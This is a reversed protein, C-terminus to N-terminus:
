MNIIEPFLDFSDLDFSVSAPDQMLPDQILHDQLSPNLSPESVHEQGMTYKDYLEDYFDIDKIEVTKITTRCMPCAPSADVRTNDLHKCLCDKCFVHQCNTTLTQIQKIADLCIPCDVEVALEDSTELCLMMPQVTWITNKNTMQPFYMVPYDMQQVRWNDTTDSTPTAPAADRTYSENIDVVDIIEISGGLDDDSDTLWQTNWQTYKVKISIFIKEYLAYASDTFRAGCFQIAMARVIRNSLDSALFRSQERFDEKTYNVLHPNGIGLVDIWADKIEPDNCTRINHGLIGCHSCAHHTTQMKNLTKISSILYIM